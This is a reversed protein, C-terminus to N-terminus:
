YFEVDSCSRRASIPSGFMGSVALSKPVFIPAATGWPSNFWIEILTLHLRGNGIGEALAGARPLGGASTISEALVALLFAGTGAVCCRNSRINVIFLNIRTNAMM